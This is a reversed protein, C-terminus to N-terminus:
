IFCFQDPDSSNEPTANKFWNVLLELNPSSKLSLPRNHDNGLDKWWTINIDTGICYTWFNKNSSLLYFYFNYHSMIHIDHNM